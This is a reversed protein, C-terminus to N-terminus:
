AARKPFEIYIASCDKKYLDLDGFKKELLEDDLRRQWKQILTFGPHAGLGYDKLLGAKLKKTLKELEALQGKAARLEGVRPDVKVKEKKAAM